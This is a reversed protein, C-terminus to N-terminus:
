KTELIELEIYINSSSNISPILLYGDRRSATFEKKVLTKQSCTTVFAPYPYYYGDKKKKLDFSLCCEDKCGNKQYGDLIEKTTKKLEDFNNNDVNRVILDAMDGENVPTRLFTLLFNNNEFNKIGTLTSSSKAAAIFLLYFIIAIIIFLFVSSIITIFEGLGKKNM